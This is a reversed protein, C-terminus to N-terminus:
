QKWMGHLNCYARVCQPTDCTMFVAEPKDSPKLEKRLVTTDTLLEIWQIYHDQTMPHLTSGVTVKYGGEAKEVVPVHKELSADVNNCALRVMKSGCCVLQGEGETIVEVMNGCKPCHYVDRTKTM